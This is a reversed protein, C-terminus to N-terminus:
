NEWRHSPLTQAQASAAPASFCHARTLPGEPVPHGLGGWGWGESERREGGAEGPEAPVHVPVDEGLERALRHLQKVLLEAVEVGGGLGHHAELRGPRGCGELGSCGGVGSGAAETATAAGGAVARGGVGEAAQQCAAVGLVPTQGCGRPGAAGQGWVWRQGGPELGIM